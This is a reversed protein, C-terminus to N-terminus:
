DADAGPDSAAARAADHDAYARRIADLQAPGDGPGHEFRATLGFAESLVELRGDPWLWCSRKGLPHDDSGVTVFEPQADSM